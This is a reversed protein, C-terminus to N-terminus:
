PPVVKISTSLSILGRNRDEVGLPISRRCHERQTEIERSKPSSM